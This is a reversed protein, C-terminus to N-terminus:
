LRRVHSIAKELIGFCEDNVIRSVSKGLRPLATKIAGDAKLRGYPVYHASSSYYIYHREGIKVVKVIVGPGYVHARSGKKHGNYEITVIRDGIKYRAHADKRITHFEEVAWGRRLFRRAKAIKEADDRHLEAKRREIASFERYEPVLSEVHNFTGAHAGRSSKLMQKKRLPGHRRLHRDSPHWLRKLAVLAKKDLQIAGGEEILEKMFQRVQEALSDSKQLVALECLREASSESLNASGLLVWGDFVACKAHLAESSYVDVGSGLIKLLVTPDTEGSKVATVSADCILMDGRRFMGRPNKTVYAICYCRSKAHRMADCVDRDRWVDGSIARM